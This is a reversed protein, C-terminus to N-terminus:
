SAPATDSVPDLAERLSAIPMFRDLNRGTRAAFVLTWSDPLDDILADIGWIVNRRINAQKSQYGEEEAIQAYSKRQLVHMVLWRFRQELTESTVKPGRKGPLTQRNFYCAAHFGVAHALSPPNYKLKGCGPCLNFTGARDQALLAAAVRYRRIKDTDRPPRSRGRRSVRTKSLWDSLAQKHVEPSDKRSVGYVNRVLSERMHKARDVSHCSRCLHSDLQKIMWPALLRRQKCRPCTVWEWSAKQDEIRCANCIYTRSEPDYSKYTRLKYPKVTREHSCIICMVKFPV